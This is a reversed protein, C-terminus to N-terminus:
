FREQDKLLRWYFVVNNFPENGKDQKQKCTSNFTISFDSGIIMGSISEIDAIMKNDLGFVITNQLKVTEFLKIAQTQKNKISM